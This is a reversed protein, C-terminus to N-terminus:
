DEILDCEIGSERQIKHGRWSDVGLHVPRGAPLCPVQIQLKLFHPSFCFALPRTPVRAGVSV